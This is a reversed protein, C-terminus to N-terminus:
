ALDELTITTEVRKGRVFVPETREVWEASDDVLLGASVLADLLAKDASDPDPLRRWPAVVWLSVRRRGTARPVGAVLAYGWVLEAAERKLRARRIPHSRLLENLLPLRYGPIVVFYAPM